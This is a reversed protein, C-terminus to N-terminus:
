SLTVLKMLVDKKPMYKIKIVGVNEKRISVLPWFSFEFSSRTYISRDSLRAQKNPLLVYFVLVLSIMIIHAFFLSLLFEM